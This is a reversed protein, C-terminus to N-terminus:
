TAPHLAQCLQAVWAPEAARGLRLIAGSPLALEAVWVAAALSHLSLEHFQPPPPPDPPLTAAAKRKWSYFVSPHIGQNACFAAVTQGSHAYAALIAQIQPPSYRRRRTRGSSHSLLTNSM